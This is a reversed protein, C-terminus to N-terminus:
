RRVELQPPVADSGVAAYLRYAASVVPHTADAPPLEGAPLEERLTEIHPADGVRAIHVSPEGVLAELAEDDGLDRELLVTAIADVAAAPGVLLTDAAYPRGAYVRTADLVSLDPSIARMPAVVSATDDGTANETDVVSALTRIGGAVRGTEDPRLTPVLVVIGDRLRDPIRKEVSREGVSVTETVASEEALDVLDADFRELLEGYGLYAATREFPLYEDSAGAVAVDTGTSEIVELIAGVVAPDTVMGTSPHFPYHADPVITLREADAFAALGDELLTAVPRELMAVRRDLDPLWRGRGDDATATRVTPGDSM